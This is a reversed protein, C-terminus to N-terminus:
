RVGLADCENKLLKVQCDVCLDLGSDPRESREEYNKTPWEKCNQCFHWQYTNIHRRYIV